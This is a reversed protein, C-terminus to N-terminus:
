ATRIYRLLDKPTPKIGYLMVGVRYIKASVYGAGFLYLINAAICIAIELASVNLMCIRMFMVLPSLFPVYSCVKIYAASANAMGSFAVFFSAIFLLMPLMVVSQADELRSVTSAFGAFLFSFMFFGLLFFVIAYFFVGSNTVSMDVIGGITPSIENWGKVNLKLVTFAALVFVGFQTLGALGTGIVKGFMLPLPKTSTLLLEMAKSTKETIVSTSVYQGYLIITFYLMFLMVYGLWFSQSANKGVSIMNAAPEANLIADIQEASLGNGSLAERQYVNRIMESFDFARFLLMNSGKVYLTYNLGSIDLALEYEGNEIKEEIGSMDPVSVWNYGAGYTALLGEGYKENDARFAAAKLPASGKNDSEPSSGQGINDSLFGFASKFVPINGGVLVLVLLIATVVIFSKSKIYNTYEFKFVTKFKNMHKNMHKDMQKDMHKGMHKGM